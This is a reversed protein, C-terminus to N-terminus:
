ITTEKEEETIIISKNTSMSVCAYIVYFLYNYM